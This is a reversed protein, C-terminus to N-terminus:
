RAEFVIATVIPRGGLLDAGHEERPRNRLRGSHVLSASGGGDLNLAKSAGLKVLTDALEGLTMGADRRTRGDCAVALLREDCIGLAARPYRGVTIDSDFQRAGASFGETDIGDIVSRGGAVLQPGAQLLDADTTAPVQDRRAVRLRGHEIQVCARVADWPRDFPLSPREEGGIRLEGLPAYMPRVYFGGVIAHRVGNRRCWSALPEPRELQVVRAAFASMEYSALHITTRAGDALAIRLREVRCRRWSLADARRALRLARTQATM